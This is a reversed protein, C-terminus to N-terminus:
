SHSFDAFLSEKINFESDPLTEVLNELLGSFFKYSYVFRLYGYTPVFKKDATEFTSVGVGLLM